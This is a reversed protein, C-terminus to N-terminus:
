LDVRFLDTDMRYSKLADVALSSVPALLRDYADIKGEEWPVRSVIELSIKTTTGSPQGTRNQCAQDAMRTNPNLITIEQALTHAKLGQTFQDKCYGFHTCCLAAFVKGGYGSLKAAAQKANEDIMQSVERSFPNLEIKGALNVCGQNIIRSPEIGKKILAAKHTGEGTTTPTGFIIVRSEEDQDLQEYIMEVGHDVIGTVPIPSAQAFETFPYIVTLTNCAILISDPNFSAMADLAKSFVRAKTEMDPFHNYGKDTCPWANFYVLNIKDFSSGKIIQNAIAAFVSLGGLGSDTVLITTESASM